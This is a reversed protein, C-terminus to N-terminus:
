GPTDSVLCTGTEQVPAAGKLMEKPILGTGQARYASWARWVAPVFGAGMTYYILGTPVIDRRALPRMLPFALLQFSKPKIGSGFDFSM